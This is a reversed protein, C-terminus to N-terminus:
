LSLTDENDSDELVKDLYEEITLGDRRPKETAITSSKAPVYVDNLLENLNRKWIDDARNKNTRRARKAKKPAGPGDPLRKGPKPTSPMKHIPRKIHAGAYQRVLKPRELPTIEELPM